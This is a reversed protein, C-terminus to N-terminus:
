LELFSTLYSGQNEMTDETVSYKSVVPCKLKLSNSVFAHLRTLSGRVVGKLCCLVAGGTTALRPVRINVEWRGLGWVRHMHAEIGDWEECLCRRARELFISRLVPEANFECICTWNHYPRARFSPETRPLELSFFKRLKIRLVKFALWDQLNKLFIGM